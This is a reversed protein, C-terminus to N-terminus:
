KKMLCHGNFNIDPLSHYDVNTSAFNSDSKTINEIGEESMENSKWSHIQSNGHFYKISTKTPIFVLDYQFIGLSFYKAGDTISFKDIFDKKIRKTSILKKSLENWQNKKQNKKSTVDKLKENFGTKNVFNSKSASNIM